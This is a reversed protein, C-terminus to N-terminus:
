TVEDGFDPVGFKRRIKEMWGLTELTVKGGATARIIPTGDEGTDGFGALSQDAAGSHNVKGAGRDARSDPEESANFIDYVEVGGETAVRSVGSRSLVQVGPAGAGFYAQAALKRDVTM